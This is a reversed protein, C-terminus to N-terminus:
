FSREEVKRFFSATDLYDALFFDATKQLTEQNREYRDYVATVLFDAAKATQVAHSADEFILTEEKKTGLFRLAAEFVDPHDKGYGIESCTFIESFYCDLGCRKLAAEIQYRDTVTAICLSVGREKLEKLFAEVGPKPQVEYFYFGEVVRNIGDAVEEETGELAYRTKLYSASQRLSMNEMERRLGEKPERGISKLYLIGAADWIHMSDFLTGDFDFIAGKLKM